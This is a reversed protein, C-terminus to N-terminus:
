PRMKRRVIEATERSPCVLDSTELYEMFNYIAYSLSPEDVTFAVSGFQPHTYIMKVADERLASIVLNDPMAFRSTDILVPFYRGSEAAKLMEGLLLRRQAPAFPVYYEDPVEIIRGTGLFHDLGKESFFSTLRITRMMQYVERLMQIYQRAIEEAGPMDPRIQRRVTDETFFLALCPGPFFSYFPKAQDLFSRYSESYFRILEFADPLPTVLPRARQKLKIYLEDCLRRGDPTRIFLAHRFDGSFNVCASSTLLLCPMLSAESFRLAVDDYYYFPQYRCGSVFLPLVRGFCEINCRNDSGKGVGQQLCVIHELLLGSHHRAASALDEMLSPEQPQAILRIRAGDRTSEQEIVARLLESVAEYGSVALTEPLTELTLRAGARLPFPLAAPPHGMQELLSKVLQHRAYVNEGMKAILYWRHLEETQPPSLMLTESLRELARADGTREGKKMRLLQTRDIGARKAVEAYSLGSRLLYADLKKSFESM